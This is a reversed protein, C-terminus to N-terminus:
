IREKGRLKKRDEYRMLGEVIAGGIAFVGCLIATAVLLLFWNEIM